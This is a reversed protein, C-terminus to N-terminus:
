DSTTPAASLNYRPRSQQSITVASPIPLLSPRRSPEHRIAISADPLTTLKMCLFIETTLPKPSGVPESLFSPRDLATAFHNEMCYISSYIHQMRTEQDPTDHRGIDIALRAAFGILQGFNGKQPNFLNHLALLTIAQLTTITIDATAVDIYLLAREHCEDALMCYGDQNTCHCATCYSNRGHLLSLQQYVMRRFSHSHNM